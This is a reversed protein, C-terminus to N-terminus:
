QKNMIHVLYNLYSAFTVWIFYPIQLYASKKNVGYFSFIMGSILLLLIIVTVFAALYDQAGFFFCTWLFNAALQMVYFFYARTKGNEPSEYVIYTSLGMLIYLVTWVIPFVIMPPTISPKNVTEFEKFGDLNILSAAGGTLIPILVSVALRKKSINTILM